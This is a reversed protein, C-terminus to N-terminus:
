RCSSDGPREARLCTGGNRRGCVSFLQEPWRNPRAGCLLELSQISLQTLVRPTLM